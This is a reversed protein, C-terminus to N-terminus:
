GLQICPLLKQDSNTAATTSTTTATAITASAARVVASSRRFSGTAGPCSKRLITASVFVHRIRRSWIVDLSGHRCVLLHRDHGDKMWLEMVCPDFEVHMEHVYKAWVAAVVYCSFSQHESLM